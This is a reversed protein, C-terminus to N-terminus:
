SSLAVNLEHLKPKSTAGSVVFMRAANTGV